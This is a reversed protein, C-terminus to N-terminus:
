LLPAMQVCMAKTLLKKEFLNFLDFLDFLFFGALIIGLTEFM